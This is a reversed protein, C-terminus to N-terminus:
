NLFRVWVATRASIGPPKGKAATSSDVRGVSRRSAAPFDPGHTRPMAASAVPPMAPGSAVLSRFAWATVVQSMLM